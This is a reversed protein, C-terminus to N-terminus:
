SSYTEFPPEVIGNRPVFWWRDSATTFCEQECRIEYLLVVTTPIRELTLKFPVQFLNSITSASIRRIRLANLSSLIPVSELYM